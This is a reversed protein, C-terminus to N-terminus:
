FDRNASWMSLEKVNNEIAFDTLQQADQLTFRETLVDNLGIMPTIGIM